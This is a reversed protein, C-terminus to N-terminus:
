KEIEVKHIYAFNSTLENKKRISGRMDEITKKDVKFPTNREVYEAASEACTFYEYESDNENGIEVIYRFDFFTGETDNTVFWENGFEEDAFYVTLSPFREYIAERVGEQERWATSQWIELNGDERIEAFTIEGRCRYTEPDFGLRHVLEGLWMNGFDSETQPKSNQMSEIINYLENIEKDDGTIIYTTSCWNPM